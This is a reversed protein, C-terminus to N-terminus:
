AESTNNLDSIKKNMRKSLEICALIICAKSSKIGKIKILKSYNMDALNKIENCEKLVINALDKASYKNNGSILLIALLESDSLYSAGYKILRERPRDLIPMDKIKVAM